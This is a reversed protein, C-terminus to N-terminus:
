RAARRARRLRAAQRLLVRLGERVGRVDNKDLIADVAKFADRSTRALDPFASLLALPIDPHQDALRHALDLGTDGPVGLHYDLVVLDYGAVRAPDLQTVHDVLLRPFHRTWFEVFIEADDPDDDVYLIRQTTNM